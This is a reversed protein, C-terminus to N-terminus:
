LFYFADAQIKASISLRAGRRNMGGRERSVGDEHSRRASDDYDACEAADRHFDGRRSHLRRIPPRFHLSLARCGKASWGQHVITTVCTYLRYRGARVCLRARARACPENKGGSTPANGYTTSSFMCASPPYVHAHVTGPLLREALRLPTVCSVIIPSSNERSLQRSM